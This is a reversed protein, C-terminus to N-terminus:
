QTLCYATEGQDDRPLAIVSGALLERKPLLYAEPLYAAFLHM